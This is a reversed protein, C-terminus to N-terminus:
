RGRQMWVNLDKAKDTSALRRIIFWSDPLKEGDEFEVFPLKGKPASFPLAFNVTYPTSNARLYTELKQCYYSSSPVSPPKDFVFLKLPM